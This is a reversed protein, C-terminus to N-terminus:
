CLRRNKAFYKNDVWMLLAEHYQTSFSTKDELNIDMGKDRKTFLQLKRFPNLIYARILLMHTMPTVETYYKSLKQHAFKMAFYLDEKWQSKMKAVARMIGHMHDFM